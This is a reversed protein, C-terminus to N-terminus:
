STAWGIATSVARIGRIGGGPSYVQGCVRGGRIVGGIDAARSDPRRIPSVHVCDLLIPSVKAGAAASVIRRRGGREDMRVGWEQDPSNARDPSVGAVEGRQSSAKYLAEQGAYTSRRNGAPCGPDTTGALSGPRRHIGLRRHRFDGGFGLLDQPGGLRVNTSTVAGVGHENGGDAIRRAAGM